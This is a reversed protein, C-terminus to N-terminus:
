GALPLDPQSASRTDPLPLNDVARYTFVASYKTDATQNRGAAHLLMCHFFLVDGAELEVAVATRLLPQSAPLDTRLFGAEDLQDPALSLVHTGPLLQLGGNAHHEPGLALWASVLEPRQYSWYRIDRHWGTLSGYRPHKTMICNHHAQALLVDQTELLQRLRVCLDPGTAWSRFVPDRSSAQLLRRVTRGGPAELSDPAGPYGLDAEYEIPGAAAALSRQAAARMDTCVDAAVLGRAVVYGDGQFQRVEAASFGGANM